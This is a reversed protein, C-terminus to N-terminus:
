MVHTHNECKSKMSNGAIFLSCNRRRTPELVGLGDFLLFLAVLGGGERATASPDRLVELMGM